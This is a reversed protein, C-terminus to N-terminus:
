HLSSTVLNVLDRPVPSKLVLEKDLGGTWASSIEMLIQTPTSAVHSSKKLTWQGSAIGDEQVLNHGHNAGDQSVDLKLIKTFLNDNGRVLNDDAQRAPAGQPGM